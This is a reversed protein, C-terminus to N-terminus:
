ETYTALECTRLGLVTPGSDMLNGSFIPAVYAALVEGFARLRVMGDPDLRKARNLYSQLDLASQEDALLFPNIM